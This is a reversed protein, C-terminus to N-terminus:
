QGQHELTIFGMRFVVFYGCLCCCNVANFVNKVDLTM